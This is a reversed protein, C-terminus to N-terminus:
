PKELDRACRFGLRATTYPAELSSRYAVRMFAAYDSPNQADAGSAGCFRNREGDGKERSDSAVLSAGFDSIWEWVLGHMDYIGWFNPKGRAVDGLVGRAPKSYFALIRGVWRPDGSGDPVSDGALGALEWERETPLRAGREACYAKASFWSVNTVPSSARVESGLKDASEWHALYTEDALLRKVRDRRWAPNRGVFSLYDRNTVLKVDLWFAKVPVEREAASAPYLPRYIGPGVRSMGPPAVVTRPEAGAAATLVCVAAAPMWRSWFRM